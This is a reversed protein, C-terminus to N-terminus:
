GNAGKSYLNVVTKIQEAINLKTEVFSPVKNVTLGILDNIVLVQGDTHKGAGIGITPIQISKTIEIALDDPVCELVISFAGLEELTKADQKLKLAGEETRGQKKYGGLVLYSQPTLGIHGMFPVGALSLRKFLEENGTAGEIKVAQAGTEQMVRQINLCANDVGCYTSMFPIDVVVFKTPAGKVVAKAHYIMNDITVPITDKHGQMINALSDGVLLMDLDTQNLICAMSYDYCTLMSIKKNNKMNVLDKPYYM